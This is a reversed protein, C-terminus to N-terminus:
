AELKEGFHTLRSVRRVITSRCSRSKAVSAREAIEHLEAPCGYWIIEMRREGMFQAAHDAITLKKMLRDIVRSGQGTVDRFPDRM